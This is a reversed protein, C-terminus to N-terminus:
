KLNNSLKRTAINLRDITGYEFSAISNLLEKINEEGSHVSELTIVLNPYKQIFKQAGKLVQLEMGEVDIKILIRKEIPINLVEIMDDLRVLKVKTLLGREDIAPDEAPISSLHTAGTNLPDWIFEADAPEDSLGLNFFKVKKELKNLMLNIHLAKFNEYAPEFAYCDLGNKAHLITYTGINSGIDIFVDQQKGQELMFRKVNWEYAFNGFQFDISGKRHLFYGLRGRFIRTDIVSKGTVLYFIAAMVLRIQGYQLFDRFYRAFTRIKNM